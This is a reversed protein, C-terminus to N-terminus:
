FTTEFYIYVCDTGYQEAAQNCVQSLEQKTTLKNSILGIEKLRTGLLQCMSTFLSDLSPHSSLLSILEVQVSLLAEYM